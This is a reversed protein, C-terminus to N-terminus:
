TIRRDMTDVIITAATSSVMVLAACSQRVAAPSTPTVADSSCRHAVATPPSDTVVHSAPMKADLYATQLRRRPAARASCERSKNVGADPNRRGQMSM